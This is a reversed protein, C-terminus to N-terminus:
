NKLERKETCNIFGFHQCLDKGHRSMTVSSGLEIDGSSIMEVVWPLLQHELQLVREALVEPTDHREVACVAQAILPGADVKPVVVHVSCGSTSEQAIIVREHINLGPFKPLLSPHINILYPALPAIFAKSLVRMFGALIVLNPKAEQVANLLALNFSLNDPYLNQEIVLTSIGHKKALNLGAADHQDSIVRVIKYFPQQRKLLALLNSGRGSVLVVVSFSSTKVPINV